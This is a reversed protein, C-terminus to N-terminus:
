SQVEYKGRCGLRELLASDIRCGSLVAVVSRGKFREPHKLIAGVSLSAAGEVAMGEKESVWCLANEIDSEDLLIFEDVFERCLHFTM